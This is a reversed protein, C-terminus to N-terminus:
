GSRIEWVAFYLVVFLAGPFYTAETLMSLGWGLMFLGLFIDWVGDQFFSMYVKRRVGKLDEDPVM